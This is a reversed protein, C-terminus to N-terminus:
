RTTDRVVSLAFGDYGKSGVTQIVTSALTDQEALLGIYERVAIVSADSSHPDIVAGDRVVNDAIIVSGPRTLRLAWSLYDPYGTKDADIFVLDFHQDVLTPLTDLAPGVLVDVRDGLGANALNAAAVSAHHESAELTVVRGTPPPPVARALHVTSYGGLTGIELIREANIMLAILYLMEGQPASVQIQPLGATASDSLVRELAPDAGLLRGTLFADVATWRGPGHDIAM